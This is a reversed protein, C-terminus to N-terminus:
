FKKTEFKAEIVSIVQAQSEAILDSNRLIIKTLGVIQESVCDLITKIKM